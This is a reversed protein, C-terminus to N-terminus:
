PGKKGGKLWGIVITSDGEVIFPIHLDGKSHILWLGFLLAKIEVFVADGSGLPGSFGVVCSGLADSILGGFGSPGLNGLSCGDFNLKLVLGLPPAM